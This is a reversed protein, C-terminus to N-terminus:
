WGNDKCRRWFRETWVYVLQDRTLSKMQGIHGEFEHSVPWVKQPISEWVKRAVEEATVMHKIPRWRNRLGDQVRTHAEECMRVDPAQMDGVPLASNTSLFSGFPNDKSAQPHGIFSNKPRETDQATSARSDPPTLAEIVAFTIPAVIHSTGTEMLLRSFCEASTPDSPLKPEEDDSIVSTRTTRPSLEEQEAYDAQVDRPQNLSSTISSRSITTASSLEERPAFPMSPPLVPTLDDTRLKPLEALKALPRNQGEKKDEDKQEAILRRELAAKAKAVSARIAVRQEEKVKLMDFPEITRPIRTYEKLVSELQDRDISQLQKLARDRLNKGYTGTKINPIKNMLESLEQETLRSARSLKRGRQVGVDLLSKAEM